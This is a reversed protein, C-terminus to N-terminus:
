RKNPPSISQERTRPLNPLLLLYPVLARPPAFDPSIQLAPYTTSPVLSLPFFPNKHPLRARRKLFHVHSSACRAEQEATPTAYYTTPSLAPRGAPLGLWTAGFGFWFLAGCARTCASSAPSANAAVGDNRVDQTQMVMGGITIAASVHVEDDDASKPSNRIRLGLWLGLAM